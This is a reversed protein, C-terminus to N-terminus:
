NEVGKRDFLTKSPTQISNVFEIIQRTNMDRIESDLLINKFEYKSVVSWSGYSEPFKGIKVNYESEWDRVTKM